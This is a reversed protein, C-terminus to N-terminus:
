GNKRRRWNKWNLIAVTVWLVFSIGIILFAPLGRIDFPFLEADKGQTLLYIFVGASAVAFIIAFWRLRGGTLQLWFDAANYTPDSLDKHESDKM